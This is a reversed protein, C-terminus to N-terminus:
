QYPWPFVKGYRNHAGLDTCSVSKSCEIYAGLCFSSFLITVSSSTSLRVFPSFFFLFYGMSTTLWRSARNLCLIELCLLSSDFCVLFNLLFLDQENKKRKYISKFWLAFTLSSLRISSLLTSSLHLLQLSSNQQLIVLSLNLFPSLHCNYSIESIVFLVLFM